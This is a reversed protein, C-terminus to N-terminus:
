WLYCHNPNLFHLGRKTPLKRGFKPICAPVPMLPVGLPLLLVQSRLSLQGMSVWQVYVRGPAPSLCHSCNVEQCEIQFCMEEATM